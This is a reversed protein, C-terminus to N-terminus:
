KTEILVDKSWDHQLMERNNKVARQLVAQFQELREIAEKIREAVITDLQEKFQEFHIKFNDDRYDDAEYQFAFRFEFGYFKYDNSAHKM